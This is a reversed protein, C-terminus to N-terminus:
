NKIFVMKKQAAVSHITILIFAYFKKIRRIWNNHKSFNTCLINNTNQFRHISFVPAYLFLPFKRISLIEGYKRTKLMLHENGNAGIICKM